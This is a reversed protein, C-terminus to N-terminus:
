GHCFAVGMSTSAGVRSLGRHQARQLEPARAAGGAKREHGAVRRVGDRQSQRPSARWAGPVTPVSHAQAANATICDQSLSVPQASTM